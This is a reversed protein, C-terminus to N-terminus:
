SPTDDEVRDHDGVDLGRQHTQAGPSITAARPNQEFGFSVTKAESPARSLLVWVFVLQALLKDLRVLREALCDAPAAVIGVVNADVSPAGTMESISIIRLHAQSPRGDVDALVLAVVEVGPWHLADVHANVELAFDNKPESIVTRKNKV